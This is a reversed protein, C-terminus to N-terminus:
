ERGSVPVDSDAMHPVNAQESQLDYGLSRMLPGWASEIASVEESNLASRWGGTVATRVFRIDKRKARTGIWRDEDRKELERMREATSKEAATSLRAGDCRIGLFDAVKALEAVTTKKMKEYQLLLFDEKSFRTSIWSAVNEGWSAYTPDVEGLVFRQVFKSIPYGDTIFGQKLHFYYYSIVVDRPDRVIYILKKYRPDFYQHTKILRPRPIRDLERHTINIVDPILYDINLFSVEKEPFLLNAILFRTWTNGSRPYSVLFRDDPYIKFNRGGRNLGMLTKFGDILDATTRLM